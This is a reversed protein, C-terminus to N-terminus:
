SRYISVGEDVGAFTAAVSALIQFVIKSFFGFEVKLPLAYRRNPVRKSRIRPSPTSGITVRLGMTGM